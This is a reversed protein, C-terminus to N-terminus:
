CFYVHSNEGVLRFDKLEEDLMLRKILDLTGAEVTEQYLM